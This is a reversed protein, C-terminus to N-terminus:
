TAQEGVRCVRDGVDRVVVLTKSVGYLQLGLYDGIRTYVGVLAPEAAILASGEPLPGVLVSVGGVSSIQGEEVEIEPPCFTAALSLPIVISKPILGFDKMVKLGALVTPARNSWGRRVGENWVTEHLQALIGNETEFPCPSLAYRYFGDRTQPTVLFQGRSGSGLVPDANKYLAEREMMAPIGFGAGKAAARPRERETILLHTLISLKM